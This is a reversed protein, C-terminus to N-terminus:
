PSSARGQTTCWQSGSGQDVQEPDHPPLKWVSLPLNLLNLAAANWEGRRSLAFSSFHLHKSLVHRQRGWGVTHSLLKDLPPMSPSALRPVLMESFLVYLSDMSAPSRHVSYAHLEVAFMRKSGQLTNSLLQKTQHPQRLSSGCFLHSFM